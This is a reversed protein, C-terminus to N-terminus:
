RRISVLSRRGYPVVPHEKQRLPFTQVCGIHQNCKATGDRSGNGVNCNALDSWCDGDKDKDIVNQQKGKEDVDELAIQLEVAEWPRIRLRRSHRPEPKNGCAKQAGPSLDADISAELELLCSRGSGHTEHVNHQGINPLNGNKMLGHVRKTQNSRRENGETQDQNAELLPPIHTFGSQLIFLREGLLAHM